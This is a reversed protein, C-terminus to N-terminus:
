KEGNGLSLIQKGAFQMLLFAAVCTILIEPIMYSGNYCISYIVALQNGTLSGLTPFFAAVLEQMYSVEMFQAWLLWGSLISAIYRALMAILCGLTFALPDNQIKHRLIGALGLVTFALLYDLFHLRGCHRRFHGKLRGPWLAIRFRQFCLRGGAGM